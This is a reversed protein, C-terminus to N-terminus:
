RGSGMSGIGWTGICFMLYARGRDMGVSGDAGMGCVFGCDIGLCDTATCAMGACLLVVLVEVATLIGGCCNLGGTEGACLM